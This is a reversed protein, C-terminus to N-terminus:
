PMAKREDIGSNLNRMHGCHGCRWTGKKYDVLGRRSSGCDLCLLNMPESVTAVGQMRM